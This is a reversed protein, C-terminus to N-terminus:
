SSASEVWNAAILCRLYCLAILIFPLPFDSVIHLWGIFSLPTGSIICLWRKTHCHFVQYSKSGCLHTTTFFRPCHLPMWDAAILYPIIHFWRMSWHLAGSIVCLWGLFCCHSVLSSAYGDWNNATPWRSHYLSVWQSVKPVLFSLFFCWHSASPVLLSVFVGLHTATSCM